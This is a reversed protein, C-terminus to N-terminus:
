CTGSFEGWIPQSWAQRGKEDFVTLRVYGPHIRNLNFRAETLTSHTTTPYVIRAQRVSTTLIIKAAPSTKVYLYGDEMYLERIEPGMSAYFNGAKLAQYIDKHTLAPAKIMVFGGLSDWDATGYPAHNHNDDTATCFLKDGRRLLEDYVHGNIEDWGMVYCGHNYMEMAFINTTDLNKYDEMTQLSWTPHNLMAMFGHKAFENIMDSVNEYDREFDPEGVYVQADRLDERKGWVYKPNFCPIATNHQDDPYFNIHYCPSKNWSFATKKNVDIEVSTLTLFDEDDLDSHDILVNHDSYAVVSYGAAKYIEKIKEPPLDGDSNTSHCHLNARYFQGSEPIIYQKM